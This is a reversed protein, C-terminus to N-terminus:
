CMMAIVISHQCLYMSFSTLYSIHLYSLCRISTVKPGPFEEWSIFGDKDKDQSDWFHQPLHRFIKSGSRYGRKERRKSSGAMPHAPESGDDRARAKQAEYWEVLEEHTIRLDKDLDAAVCPCVYLM